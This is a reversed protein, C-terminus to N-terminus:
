TSDFKAPPPFDVVRPSILTGLPSGTGISDTRLPNRSSELFGVDSPKAEWRPTIANGTLDRTLDPKSQALLSPRIALVGKV